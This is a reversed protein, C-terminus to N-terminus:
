VLHPLLVVVLLMDQPLHALQGTDCSIAEDLNGILFWIHVGNADGDGTLNANQWEVRCVTERLIVGM